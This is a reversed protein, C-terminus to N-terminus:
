VARAFTVVADVIVVETKKRGNHAGEITLPGVGSMVAFATADPRKQGM